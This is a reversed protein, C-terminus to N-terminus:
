YSMNILKRKKLDQEIFIMLAVLNKMKVVWSGMLGEYVVVITMAARVTSSIIAPHGYGYLSMAVM